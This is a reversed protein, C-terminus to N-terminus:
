RRHRSPGRHDRTRSSGRGRRLGPCTSIRSIAPGDPGAVGAASRWSAHRQWYEMFQISFQNFKMPSMGRRKV